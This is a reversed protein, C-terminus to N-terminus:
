FLSVNGSEPNRPAESGSGTLRFLLEGLPVLSELERADVTAATGACTAALTRAVGSLAHLSQTTGDIAQVRRMLTPSVHAEFLMDSLDHQFQELAESLGSLEAALQRM